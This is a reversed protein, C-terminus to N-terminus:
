RVSSDRKPDSRGVDTAPYISSFNCDHIWQQDSASPGIDPDYKWLNAAQSAPLDPRNPTTNWHADLKAWVDADGGPCRDNTSAYGASCTAIVKPESGKLVRVVRHETMHGSAWEIVSSCIRDNRQRHTEGWCEYHWSGYPPPQLTCNSSSRFIAV